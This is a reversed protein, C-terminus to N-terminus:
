TRRRQWKARFKKCTIWEFWEMIWKQFDICWFVFQESKKYLYVEMPNIDVEGISQM